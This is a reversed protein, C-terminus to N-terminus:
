TQLLTRLEALGHATGVAVLVDDPQLVTDPGPAPLTDDARVLAVISVGTRARFEGEGITRGTIASSVPVSVWDIALGAVNQRADALAESVQTAGLLEALARTEGPDLELVSSCQDPDEVDYLLVERRGSRHSIVAVRQGASTTFEHRVGVGPLPVENVDPVGVLSPM